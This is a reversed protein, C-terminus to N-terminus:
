KDTKLIKSEKKDTMAQFWTKIFSTNFKTDRLALFTLLVAFPVLLLCPLWAALLGGMTENKVLKEGFITSIIFIMYFLIAVLLPYGYGGKRIISGLPAGIFLFVICVMAWSYQQNLRLMYKEYSRILDSNVSRTNLIEDRDRSLDSQARVMVDRFDVSDLTQGFHRLKGADIGQKQKVLKKFPAAPTAVPLPAASAAQDSTKVIQPSPTQPLDKGTVARVMADKIKRLSDRARVSDRDEPAKRIVEPMKREKAAAEAALGSGTVPSSQTLDRTNGALFNDVRSRIKERNDTVHNRFSDISKLLQMTNMMDERNRNFNLLGEELDFQSMDFTKTWQDFYIRMFPLERKNSGLQQKKELERYQIGTDMKMVFYRGDEVTYMEGAKSSLLGTLSKDSATHDYILVDHIGRKDKDIKNVRIVTEGFASNFIGEEIALATKQKRIAVFRKNFQLLSAPKLYNSAVVSFLAIFVAVVIGPVMIRLLSIGASKMSSLEYKEAMDGFVMVSSILVTIPVAMPILTVAYYFILESMELITLGKGLIEDIYKWLFQMILVFTAVFYSLVAPGIFSVSILKDIKKMRLHCMSIRCLYTFIAVAFMFDTM